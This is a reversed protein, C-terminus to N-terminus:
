AGKCFEEAIGLLVDLDVPKKLFRLTTPVNDKSASCVIVPIQDLDPDLSRIRLFEWGDMVPMMLDLIILHPKSQGNRLMNLAEQGNIAERIEYGEMRMAKRYLERLDANDEVVLICGSRQQEIRVELVGNIAL